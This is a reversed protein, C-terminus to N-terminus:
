TSALKVCQWNDLTKVAVGLVRNLWGTVRGFVSKETM